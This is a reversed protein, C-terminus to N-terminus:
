RPVKVSLLLKNLAVLPDEWQELRIRLKYNKDSVIRITKNLCDPLEKSGLDPFYKPKRPIFRFHSGERRFEGIAPPIPVLFILFDSKGGGVTLSYGSKVSHINRKGIATNQDEVFLNIIVPLSPDIVKPTIQTRTKEDTYPTTRQKSQSSAYQALDKSHDAFPEVREERGASSYSKPRSSGSSGRNKILFLLLLLLLIVGAIIGLIPLISFTKSSEAAPRSQPQSVPPPTSPQAQTIPQQATPQAQTIPEPARTPETIVPTTTAPAPPQSVPQVPQAAPPTQQQVAPPTRPPQQQTAPQTQAPRQATAVPTGRGSTPLNTLPQGPTVQVYDLSVGRPNLRAKVANILAPSASDSVLVIKKPRNPLTNIYNEAFSVAAESDSRGAMPYQLLMRGIITEVDGRGEIRRSIDIVPRDSFPIFHFTDGIRLFERLFGGIIYNNVDDYSPRLTSSTDLLLILDISDTTQSSVVFIIVLIFVIALIGKKM